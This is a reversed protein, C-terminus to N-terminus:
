FSRNNKFHKIIKINQESNIISSLEYINKCSIAGYNPMSNIIKEIIPDYQSKIEDFTTKQQIKENLASEIEIRQQSIFDDRLSIIENKIQTRTYSDLEDM